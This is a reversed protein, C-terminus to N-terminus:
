FTPISITLFARSAGILCIAEFAPYSEDIITPLAYTVMDNSSHGSEPENAAAQYADWIGGAASGHTASMAASGGEGHFTVTGLGDM